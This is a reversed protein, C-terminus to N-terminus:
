MTRMRMDHHGPGPVSACRDINLRSLSFNSADRRPRLSHIMKRPIRAPWKGKDQAIQPTSQRRMQHDEAGDNCRNGAGYARLIADFGKDVAQRRSSRM